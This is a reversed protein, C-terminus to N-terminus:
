TRCPPRGRSSRGPTRHWAKESIDLARAAAAPGLPRQALLRSAGARQYQERGAMLAQEFSLNLSPDDAAHRLGTLLSTVRDRDLGAIGAQYWRAPGAYLHVATYGDLAALAARARMAPTVDPPRSAAPLPEEPTTM